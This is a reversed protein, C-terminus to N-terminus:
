ANKKAAAAAEEEKKVHKLIKEIQAPKTNGYIEHGVMAVPALGCSGMCAIKEFTFLHDETSEGEKINLTSEVKDCIAQAGKVHCATGCCVKVVNKGRPHLYFQSYFTLVGYIHSESYGLIKSVVGVAQRSVHGYEEQVKQLAPILAGREGKFESVIKELKSSM